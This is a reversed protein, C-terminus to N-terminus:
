PRVALHYANQLQCDDLLNFPLLGSPSVASVLQKLRGATFRYTYFYESPHVDVQNARTLRDKCLQITELLWEQQEFKV